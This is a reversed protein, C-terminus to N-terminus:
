VFCKVFSNIVHHVVGWIQFENQKDVIIPQYLENEPMLICHNERLLLRKVTLEGDLSAVIITEDKVLGSRDVILLSGNMIGVGTMSDGSVKMYFTSPPSTVLHKNLDINVDLFDSAPSPFGASVYSVVAIELDTLPHTTLFSLKDTNFVGTDM